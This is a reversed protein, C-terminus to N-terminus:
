IVGSLGGDVTLVEGNVYASAASALFVVAGQLEEPLGWRAAPTRGRIWADFEPDEKLKRTMETEFYGPAVANAQINHRGWECAMSRTLMVLGSKAACYNATTPRALRHMMSSINIIKGARRRIMGPVVAKALIFAATLNTELVERFDAVPMSELPHRRQIGANNVLIDVGGWQDEIRSLAAQVAAEDTIDFAAPYAALGDALCAEASERVAGANRGNLVVRAGCEALGRAMALGLGRYGGTVLAVRGELSFLTELKPM